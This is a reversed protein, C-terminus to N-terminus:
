RPRPTQRPCSSPSSWRRPRTSAPQSRTPRRRAREAQGVFGILFLGLLIPLVALIWATRRGTAFGLWGRPPQSDDPKLTTAAETGTM